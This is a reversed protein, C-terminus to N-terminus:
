VWEKATAVSFIGLLIPLWFVPYGLRVANVFVFPSNDPKWLQHIELSILSMPIVAIIAVMITLIHMGDTSSHFQRIPIFFIISVLTTLGFLKWASWAAQNSDINTAFSFIREKYLEKFVDQALWYGIYATAFLLLLYFLCWYWPIKFEIVQPLLYISVVLFVIFYPAYQLGNIWSYANQSMAFANTDYYWFGWALIGVLIPPILFLLDKPSILQNNMSFQIKTTIIVSLNSVRYLPVQNEYLIKPM